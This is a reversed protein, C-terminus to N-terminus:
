KGFTETENALHKEENKGSYFQIITVTDQKTENLGDNNNCQGQWMEQGNPCRREGSEWCGWGCGDLVGGEEWSRSLTPRLTSVGSTHRLCVLSLGM